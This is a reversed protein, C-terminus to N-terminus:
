LKARIKGWAVRLQGVAEGEKAGKGKGVEKEAKELVERLDGWVYDTYQSWDPRQELFAVPDDCSAFAVVLPHTIQTKDLLDDSYITSTIPTSLFSTVFAGDQHESPQPVPPTPLYTQNQAAPTTQFYIYEEEPSAFHPGTYANTQSRLNTNTLASACPARPKSPESWASSATPISSSFSSSSSSASNSSSKSTSSNLSSLANSTYSPSASTISKFLGRASDTVSNFIDADKPEPNSGSPQQTNSSM